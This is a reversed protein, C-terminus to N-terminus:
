KVVKLTTPWGYRQAAAFLHKIDAPALKVCGLSRYDGEGDWRYPSDRGPVADGQTGDSRMESHLFLATRQTRGDRCTKDAIRIAYGNIGDRGGRKHTTHSLVRYTGDPLWGKNRACEDRGATGGQGSGARYDALVKGTGSQVLRVRSAAPDRQNKNFLLHTGVARTSPAPPETARAHAPVTSTALGATLAATAALSAACIRTGM